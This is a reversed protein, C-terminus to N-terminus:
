AILLGPLVDQLFNLDHCIVLSTIVELDYSWSPFHTKVLAVGTLPLQM